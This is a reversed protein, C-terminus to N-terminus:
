FLVDRMEATVHTAGSMIFEHLLSLDSDALPMHM